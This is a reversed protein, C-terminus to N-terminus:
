TAGDHNPWAYQVPNKFDEIESCRQVVFQSQIETAMFTELERISEQALEDDRSYLTVVIGFPGLSTAVIEITNGSNYYITSTPSSRDSLLGASETYGDFLEALLESNEEGHAAVAACYM